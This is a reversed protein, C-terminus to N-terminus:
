SHQPSPLHDRGPSPNTPPPPPSIRPNPHHNCPITRHTTTATTTTTTHPTIFLFLTSTDLLLIFQQQVLTDLLPSQIGDSRNNRTIAEQLNPVNTPIKMRKNNRKNTGEGGSDALNHRESSFRAGPFSFFFTIQFRMGGGGMM